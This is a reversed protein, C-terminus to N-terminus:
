LLFFFEQLKDRPLQVYVRTIMIGLMQVCLLCICIYVSMYVSQCHSSIYVNIVLLNIIKAVDQM